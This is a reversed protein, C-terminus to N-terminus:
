ENQKSINNLIFKMHHKLNTIEKEMFDIKENNLDCKTIIDKQFKISLIPIELEQIFEKSINQMGLGKFAKEIIDLNYYIYYYCYKVYVDNKPNSLVYCHDSASFNIGYNINPQGGDGIILSEDTFDAEDVYSKLNLSSTFFPYKGEPKGYKASRKSKPNFEFIDGLKMNTTENFELNLSILDKSLKHYTQIKKTNLEIMDNYSDCMNIITLKSEDTRYVDVCIRLIDKNITYNKDQCSKVYEDCITILEKQRKISPIPRELEQIFEKSIHQMGLGKFAKEIINLNSYIYYYCYKVYVDNKPNSLVFCDNSASFNIGYNINANGGTGIILSEDIFDPEDVYYKLKMSSTFFPYKGEPKGYSALRKSKPNFEFIDGLKMNTCEGNYTIVEKKKYTSFSLSLKNEIINTIDVEELFEKQNNEINYKYYKVSKTEFQKPNKFTVERSKKTIKVNLIDDQEKRKTFFLICTKVGTNEFINSPVIIIEHLECTKLLYARIKIIDKKNNSFLEKGDPLVIACKGGIKLMYIISQLFLMIINNSSIPCHDYVHDHRPASFLDNYKYGKIGFPPNALINDFKNKYTYEIPYKLSDGKDLHDFPHGTSILMNSCALNFTDDNIEKGHISNKINNWDLKINRQKGQEIINKIYTVLFGGTGMTPDCMSEITGDDFLKPQILDIMIKKLILPTFYQGLVKGVMIDKIVEQYSEGLIDDSFKSFDVSDIKQIIKRYNLGMKIGFGQDTPYINRTSPHVSLIEDWLAKMYTFFNEDQKINNNLSSFKYLQMLKVKYDKTIDYDYNEIDIEVGFKPELLKLILFSNLIRLAENGTKGESRLIDLISKFLNSLELNSPM